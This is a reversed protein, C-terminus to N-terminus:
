RRSGWLEFTKLTEWPSRNTADRRAADASQRAEGFSGNATMAATIIASTIEADAPHWRPFFEEIFLTSLKADRFQDSAVIDRLYPATNIVDLIESEELANVM